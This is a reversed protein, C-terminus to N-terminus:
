RLCFCTESEQLPEFEFMPNTQETFRKELQELTEGIRFTQNVCNLERAKAEWEKM